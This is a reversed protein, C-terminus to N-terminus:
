AAAALLRLAEGLRAPDHAGGGPLAVDAEVVEVGTIAGVPLAGRHALVVDPEIGHRRVADLHAAVDYGATEPAFPRLNCVLVRRAPTSDLAAVVDPVVAAALVSGYLSGPGLVVLDAAGLADLAEPPASVDPELHVSAVDATEEVAVQGRVTAGGDTTAVLEVPGATSPIVSARAPVGLLSAVRRVAAALDDGEGAALAALLINGAAHGALDGDCFRHELAEALGARRPDALSTLCRRLDGPAPLGTAARIRGSSGGDDAVSVLATLSGAWPACARLTAALGHGGGVAVVSAAGPTV